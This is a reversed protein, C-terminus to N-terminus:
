RFGLKALSHVEGSLSHGSAQNKVKLIEAMISISIEEPTQAGIDIGVPTYIHDFSENPFDERLQEFVGAIRRRSGIMGIYGPKEQRSLLQQLSIVDFKHGRTLLLVYTDSTIPVHQFYSLYSECCVVEDVEPFREETAFEPRDDVVTVFFDLMKGVKAVPECVHGAGAIIFHIPAKYLEVYCQVIADGWQFNITKTKKMIMLPLCHLNLAETLCQSATNGHYQSGDNWLLIRNGVMRRDTHDTITILATERRKEISKQLKEIIQDNLM